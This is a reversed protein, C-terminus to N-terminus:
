GVSEMRMWLNLREMLGPGLEGAFLSRSYLGLRDAKLRPDRGGAYYYQATIDLCLDHLEDPIAAFGATFSARYNLVGETFTGARLFIIGDGDARRYSAAAVDAWADVNRHQLRVFATVPYNNLVIINNGGGSYEEDTYVISPFTRHCYREMRDVAKDLLADLWLNDVIQIPIRGAYLLANEQGQIPVDAPSSAAPVLLRTRWESPATEIAALLLTMTAYAAKVLTVTGPNAGGTQILIIDTDTVEVTAATATADGNWLEFGDVELDRPDLRLHSILEPATALTAM